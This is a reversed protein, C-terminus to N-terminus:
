GSQLLNRGHGYSPPLYISQTALFTKIALIENHDAKALPQEQYNVKDEDYAYSTSSKLYPYYAAVYSPANPNVESRYTTIDAPDLSTNHPDQQIVDAICFITKEAKCFNTLRTIWSYYSAPGFRLLDSPVILTASEALKIAEELEEMKVMAPNSGAFDEYTGLSIIYCAKGGNQFYAMIGPHMFGPIYNAIKDQDKRVIALEFANSGNESIQFTGTTDTKGFYKEYENQTSILVPERVLNSGKIYGVSKGNPLLAKQTFGIFVPVATQNPIVTHEFSNENVYVGPTQYDPM